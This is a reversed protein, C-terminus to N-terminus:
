ELRVRYVEALSIIGQRAIELAGETLPRMGDRRAQQEIDQAATDPQILRRLAPTVELLEYVAIRGAFGRDNCKRCGQGVIFTRPGSTSPM